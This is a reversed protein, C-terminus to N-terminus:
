GLLGAKSTDRLHQLISRFRVGRNHNEGGWHHLAVPQLASTLCPSGSSGGETNVTYTVREGESPNIVAGFALKLPKASPHQLVILPEDKAFTHDAPKLFERKGGGPVPDEAAPEALRILAYDLAEVPSSALLWNAALRCERGRSEKGDLSVEYDFRLVTQAAQATSLVGAVHFNTIAVDRGVLFGSGYGALSNPDATQPQPEIRCVARRSRAMRDLWQGANEFPVSQLVIREVEGPESSAFRFRDAVTRLRGSGPNEAAAGLILEALRGRSRAWGILEFAVTPMDGAMTVNQLPENLTEEVVIRMQDLRPFADLLALRIEKKFPGDLEMSTEVQAAPNPHEAVLSMM